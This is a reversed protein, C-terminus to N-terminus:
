AARKSAFKWLSSTQAAAFPVRRERTIPRLDRAAQILTGPDPGTLTIYLRQTRLQGLWGGGIAALQLSGEPPVPDFGFTLRGSFGYAPLPRRAERVEVVSRPMRYTLAIGPSRFPRRRAGPPYVSVLRELRLAALRLDGSARGLWLAPTGLVTAAESPSSRQRSLVGGGSPAPPQRRPAEFDASSFRISEIRAISWRTGERQQIVVPLFSGADVAVREGSRLGLWRMPRGDIVASGLDRVLGRRLAERYGTLFLTLAPDLRWGPKKALAERTGLANAIVAGNRREVVHLRRSQEDFWSEVSLRASVQRGTSLDVTRDDEVSRVVVAHLVPKRGIAALARDSLSPGHGATAFVLGIAVGGAAVAAAAIGPVLLPRRRRRAASPEDALAAVREALRVLEPDDRLVELVERPLQEGRGRIM